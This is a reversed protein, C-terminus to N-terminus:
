STLRRRQTRIPVSGLYSSVVPTAKLSNRERLVKTGRANMTTTYTYLPVVHTTGPIAAVVDNVINAMGTVVNNLITANWQDEGAVMGADPGPPFYTRPHGGKYRYPITFNVMVCLSPTTASAGTFNFPAHTSLGESPTPTGIDVTKVAQIQGNNALYPAIHVQYGQFITDALKQIDAPSWQGGNKPNLFHWIQRWPHASVIGQVIAQAVAPVLIGAM